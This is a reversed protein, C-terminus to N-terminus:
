PMQPTEICQRGSCLRSPASIAVHPVSESFDLRLLGAHPAEPCIIVALGRPTVGGPWARRRARERPHKHWARV